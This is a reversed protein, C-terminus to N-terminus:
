SINENLGLGDLLISEVLGNSNQYHGNYMLVDGSVDIFVIQTTSIIDRLDIEDRGFNFVSITINGKFGPDIWGGIDGACVGIRAMSSKTKLFGAVNVPMNVWEQTSVTRHKGPKIIWDNFKTDISENRLDYSAPQINNIDYNEMLGNDILDRIDQSGLIM